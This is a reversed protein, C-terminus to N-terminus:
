ILEDEPLPVLIIRYKRGAVQLKMDGSGDDVLSDIPLDSHNILHYLRVFLEKKKMMRARREEEM